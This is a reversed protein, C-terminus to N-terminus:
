CTGSPVIRSASRRPSSRASRPPSRTKAKRSRPSSRPRSSTRGAPAEGLLVHALRRGVGKALAALSGLPALLWAATSGLTGEGAAVRKSAAGAAFGRLALLILVMLGLAVLGGALGFRRYGVIASLVAATALALERGVALSIVLRRPHRHLEYFLRGLRRPGEPMRAITRAEALTAEAGALATWVILAAGLAVLITVEAIELIM